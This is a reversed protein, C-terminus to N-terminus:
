WVKHGTEAEWKATELALPMLNRIGLWDSWGNRRLGDVSTAGIISVPTYAIARGFQSSLDMGCPCGHIMGEKVVIAAGTEQGIFKESM